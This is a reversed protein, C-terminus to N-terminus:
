EKKARRPKTTEGAIAFAMAGAKVKSTSSRLRTTFQKAEARQEATVVPLAKTKEKTETIQKMVFAKNPVHQLLIAVIADTDISSTATTQDASLTLTGTVREEIQSRGVTGTITVDVKTEDGVTILNRKTRKKSLYGLAGWLISSLKAATDASRM